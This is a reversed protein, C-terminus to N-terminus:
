ASYCSISKLGVFDPKNLNTEGDCFKNFDIMPPM